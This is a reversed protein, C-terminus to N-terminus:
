ACYREPEELNRRIAALFRAATGADALKHDFDLALPLVKRTVPRGDTVVVDDRIGLVGLAAISPSALQGHMATVHHAHIDNITFSGARERQKALWREDAAPVFARAARAIEQAAAVVGAVIPVRELREIASPGASVAARAEASKEDFVRAIAAIDLRDADPVVVLAPADGAEVPVCIDIREDPIIRYRGNYRYNYFIHERLAMAAAKVVVHTLSVGPGAPRGSNQADIWSLARDIAADMDIVVTPVYNARHFRDIIARRAEIVKEPPNM